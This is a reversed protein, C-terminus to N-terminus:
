EWSGWKKLAKTLSKVGERINGWVDRENGASVDKHCTITMLDSTDIRAGCIKSQKLLREIEPMPKREQLQKVTMEVGFRPDRRWKPLNAPREEITLTFEFDYPPLYPNEGVPQRWEYRYFPYLRPASASHIFLSIVM